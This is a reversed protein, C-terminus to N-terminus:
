LVSKQVNNWWGFVHTMADYPTESLIKKQKNDLSNFFVRFTEKPDEVKPLNKFEPKLQLNFVSVSGSQFSIDEYECYCDCKVDEAVQEIEGDLIEIINEDDENLLSIFRNRDEVPVSISPPDEVYFNADFNFSYDEDWTFYTQYEALLKTQVATMDKSSSCLTEILHQLEHKFEYGNYFDPETSKKKYRELLSGTTDTSTM